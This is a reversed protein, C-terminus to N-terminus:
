QGVAVREVIAQADAILERTAVMAHACVGRYRYGLCDCVVRQSSTDIYPLHVSGPHSRSPVAYVQTGNAAVKGVVSLHDNQAIELARRVDQLRPLVPFMGQIEDRNMESSGIVIKRRSDRM